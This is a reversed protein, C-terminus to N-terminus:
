CNGSSPSTQFARIPALTPERPKKRLPSSIRPSTAASSPERPFLSVTSPVSLDFDAADEQPMEWDDVLEEADGDTSLFARNAPRHTTNNNNNHNNNNNKSNNNNNNHNNNHNNYYNHNSNGSNSNFPTNFPKSFPKSHPKNPLKSHPKFEDSPDIHGSFPANRANSPNPAPTEVTEVLFIFPHIEIDPSPHYSPSLVIDRIAYFEELSQLTVAYVSM